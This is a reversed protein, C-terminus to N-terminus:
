DEGAVASWSNSFFGFCDGKNLKLTAVNRRRSLSDDGDDEIEEKNLDMSVVTNGEVIEYGSPSSASESESAFREGIRLKRYGREHDSEGPLQFAHHALM